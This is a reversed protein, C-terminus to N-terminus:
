TEDYLYTQSFHDLKLNSMRRCKRGYFRYKCGPDRCVVICKALYNRKFKIDKWKKINSERVVDRFVQISPFKQGVSLQPDGMNSMQFESRM